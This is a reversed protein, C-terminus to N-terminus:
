DGAQLPLAVPLGAAEVKREARKNSIASPSTDKRSAQLHPWCLSALRHLNQIISVALPTLTPRKRSGGRGLRDQPLPLVWSPETFALGRAVTEAPTADIM